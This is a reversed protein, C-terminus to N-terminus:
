TKNPPKVGVVRVKGDVTRESWVYAAPNGRENKGTGYKYPQGWPDTLAAKGGQIYAAGGWPPALLDELKAPYAQANPHLRYAELAQRLNKSARLALEEKAQEEKPLDKEAPDARGPGIAVFMMLVVGTLRRM